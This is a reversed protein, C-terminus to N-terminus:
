IKALPYQFSIDFSQIHPFLLWWLKLFMRTLTILWNNFNLWHQTTTLRELAIVIVLKFKLLCVMKTEINKILFILDSFLFFQKNEQNVVFLSLFLSFRM